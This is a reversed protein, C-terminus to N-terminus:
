ESIVRLTMRGQRGSGEREAEVTEWVVEGGVRNVGRALKAKGERTGFVAVSPGRVPITSKGKAWGEGVVAALTNINNRGAGFADGEGECVERQGKKVEGLGVKGWGRVGRWTQTM